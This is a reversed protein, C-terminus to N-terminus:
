RVGQLSRICIGLDGDPRRGAGVALQVNGTLNQAVVPDVEVASSRRVADVDIQVPGSKQLRDVAAYLEKGTLEPVDFPIDDGVSRAGVDDDRRGTGQDNASVDPRIAMDLEVGRVAAQRVRIEGGSDLFAGPHLRDIRVEDVVQGIPFNLIRIQDANQGQPRAPQAHGPAFRPHIPM